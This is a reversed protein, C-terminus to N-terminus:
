KKIIQNSIVIHWLFTYCEEKEKSRDEALVFIVSVYTCNLTSSGLIYNGLHFRKSIAMMESTKATWFMAQVCVITWLDHSNYVRHLFPQRRISFLRVLRMRSLLNKVVKTEFGVSTLSIYIRVFSYCLRLWKQMPDISEKIFIYCKSVYNTHLENLQM